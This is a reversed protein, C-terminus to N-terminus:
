KQPCSISYNPSSKTWCRTVSSLENSSSIVSRSCLRKQSLLCNTYFFKKEIVVLAWFTEVKKCNKCNKNEGMILKLNKKAWNKCNQIFNPAFKRDSCSVRWNGLNFPGHVFITNFPLWCPQPKRYRTLLFIAQSLIFFNGFEFWVLRRFLFFNGM